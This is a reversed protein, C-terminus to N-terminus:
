SRSNYRPCAAESTQPTLLVSIPGGLSVSCTIHVIGGYRAPFTRSSLSLLFLRDSFHDSGTKAHMRVWCITSSLRINTPTILHPQSPGREMAKLKLGRPVKCSFLNIFCADGIIIDNDRYNGFPLKRTVDFGRSM